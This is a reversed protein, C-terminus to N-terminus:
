NAESESIAMMAAAPDARSLAIKKPHKRSDHKMQELYKASNGMNKDGRSSQSPNRQLMEDNARSPDHAM